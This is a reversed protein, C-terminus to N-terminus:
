GKMLEFVSYHDGNMGMAEYVKQAGHNSKDVYLRLGMVDADNAILTQLNQFMAKFVGHKRYKEVVYVSQIWWVTGNRWDSWEYTVSHCGTIAGDLEAVFYAGKTPDDFMAQVGKRVTQLDLALNESEYALRQQFEVLVTIDDPNAKRIGIKTM